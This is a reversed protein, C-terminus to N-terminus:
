TLFNSMSWQMQVFVTMVTLDFQKSPMTCSKFKFSYWIHLIKLKRQQTFLLVLIKPIVPHFACFLVSSHWFDIFEFYKCLLFGLVYESHLTTLSVPLVIESNSIVDLCNRKFIDEECSFFLYFNRTRLMRRFFTSSFAMQSLPSLDM